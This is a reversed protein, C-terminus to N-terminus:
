KKNWISDIQKQLNSDPTKAENVPIAAVGRDKGKTHATFGKIIKKKLLTKNGNPFIGAGVALERLDTLNMGQLKQDLEEASSVGFPNKKNLGMIENIDHALKVKAAAESEQSEDKGHIEEIQKTKRKKSNAM